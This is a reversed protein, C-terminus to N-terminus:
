FKPKGVPAASSPTAEPIPVHNGTNSLGLPGKTITTPPVKKKLGLRALTAAMLHDCEAREKDNMLRGLPSSGRDNIFAVRTRTPFFEGPRDEREEGGEQRVDLDVIISGVGSLTEIDECDWGCSQLTQFSREIAKPTLWLDCELVRGTYDGDTLECKLEIFSTGEKASVKKEWAIVRGEYIGNPIIDTAM